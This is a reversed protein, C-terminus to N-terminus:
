LSKFEGLYEVLNVSGSILKERDSEPITGFSYKNYGYSKVMDELSDFKRLKKVNMDIPIWHDDEQYVYVMHGIRGNKNMALFKMPYDELLSSVAVVAETCDGDRENYTTEFNNTTYIYQKSSFFYKYLYERADEPTEVDEIVEKVSSNCAIILPLFISLRM